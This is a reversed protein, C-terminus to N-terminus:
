RRIRMVLAVILLVVGLALLGFGSYSLLQDGFQSPGILLFIGLALYALNYLLMGPVNGIHKRGM